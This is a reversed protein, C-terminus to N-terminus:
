SPTAVMEWWPNRQHRNVRCSPTQCWLLHKTEESASYSDVDLKEVWSIFDPRLRTIVRFTTFVIEHERFGPMACCYFRLIMACDKCRRRCFHEELGEPPDERFNCDTLVRSNKWVPFKLSCYHSSDSYGSLSYIHKCDITDSLSLLKPSDFRLHSCIHTASTKRLSRLAEEFKPRTTQDSAKCQLISTTSTIYVM